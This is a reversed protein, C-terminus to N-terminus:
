DGVGTGHVKLAGNLGDERFMAEFAMARVGCLAAEGECGEFGCRFGEFA